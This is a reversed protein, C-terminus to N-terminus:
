VQPGFVHVDAAAAAATLAAVDAVASHACRCASMSRSSSGCEFAWPVDLHCRSADTLILCSTEGGLVDCRRVGRVICLVSCVSNRIMRMFILRWLMTIM